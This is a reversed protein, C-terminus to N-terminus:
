TEDIRLVVPALFRTSAASMAIRARWTYSADCVRCIWTGSRLNRMDARLCGRIDTTTAAGFGRPIQWITARLCLLNRAQELKGKKNHKEVFDCHAPVPTGIQQKQHPTPFCDQMGD